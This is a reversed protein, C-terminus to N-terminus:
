SSTLVIRSNAKFYEIDSPDVPVANNDSLDIMKISENIKTSECIRRAGSIDIRNNKMALNEINKMEKIADVIAASGVNTISCSSVNINSISPQGILCEALSKAGEEGIQNDNVFIAKLSQINTLAKAIRKVGEYQIMNNSIDIKTLHVKNKIAEAISYAGDNELKNNGIIIEILHNNKMLAYSIAFAGDKGINNDHLYLRELSNNGLILSQAIVVAGRDGMKKANMLYESNSAASLQKIITDIEDNTQYKNVIEKYYTADLKSEEQVAEESENLKKKKQSIKSDESEPNQVRKNGNAHPETIIEPIKIDGIKAEEAALVNSLIQKTQNIFEPTIHTHPEDRAIIKMISKYRESYKPDQKQKEIKDLMAKWQVRATQLSSRMIEVKAEAEKQQICTTYTGKIDDRIVSISHHPFKDEKECNSCMFGCEDCM